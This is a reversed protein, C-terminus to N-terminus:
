KFVKIWSMKEFSLILLELISVVFIVLGMFFWIVIQDLSIPHPVEFNNLKKGNWRWYLVKLWMGVFGLVFWGIVVLWINSM